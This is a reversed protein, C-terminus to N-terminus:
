VLTLPGIFFGTQFSFPENSRIIKGKVIIEVKRRQIEGAGLQLLSLKVNVELSVNTIRQEYLEIQKKLSNIIIEKREENSLHIDYDSEWFASGYFDNMKNEGPVTTIMLHLNRYISDLLGCVPLKKKDFFHEFRIPLKLYEKM